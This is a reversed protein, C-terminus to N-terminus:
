PNQQMGSLNIVSAPILLTYRPSSPLLTYAQGSLMRKPTVSFIPDDKLRRLDTWRTGRSILEKRREALILTLAAQQDGATFPVFSGNQWRSKLLKNLDAMAPGVQGARAYAEARVLYMEDLV